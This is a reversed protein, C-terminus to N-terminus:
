GAGLPPIIPLFGFELIRAFSSNGNGQVSWVRFKLKMDLVRDLTKIDNFM